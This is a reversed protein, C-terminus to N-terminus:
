PRLAAAADILGYGYRRDPGPPGIDRATEKLRREIAAPSPHRGLRGSAILLAATGTVHPAAMSTGEYGSPLGFHRIGTTFTQQYIDKGPADPKCHAADWPNDDNPADAGGGPASVDVGPGANSYDAECGDDTTAAVAIVGSARAPYAVRFDAQNGAAAVVTVGHRRAYHLASIIDPIQAARVSSDFELSLNILQVKRKTAYRIARAIAVTDGAGDSDLVRLPMIRAHYAIGAAARRNDTSEAITGAVHTGHGNLDFPYRDGDVFDHGRVFGDLDPARRYRKFSRYAVGTDLVAVTVGRGGSAHAHRALEWAEPMNIGFPGWLNWQLHWGPDNPVFAAAHAVLNPVAYAVSRNRELKSLTQPVSAGGEITLQQSGGPLTRRTATRTAAQIDAKAGGSTGAKYHVIVQDPVYDAAAAGQPVALAAAAVTALVLSRARM